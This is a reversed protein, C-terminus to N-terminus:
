FAQKKAAGPLIERLKGTIGETVSTAPDMAVAKHIMPHRQGLDADSTQEWLEKERKKVYVALVKPIVTRFNNSSSTLVAITEKVVGGISRIQEYPFAMGAYDFVRQSPDDRWYRISDYERDNFGTLYPGPNITAVQVFFERLEGALSEAFAELAYKSGCYPGSLPDAILGHVSSVFVIKGSKRRIMQRAVQQTLLITGFVNVEFQQRLMAEPIDILSGGLSIGANNLLVDVAWTGARDRDTPDTIDLKEVQLEIKEEKAAQILLSVESLTEVGAIVREGSKALTFAIARGFGTAAGTILYTKM